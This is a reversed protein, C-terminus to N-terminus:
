DEEGDIPRIKLMGEYLLDQLRAQSMGALEQTEEETLGAYTILMANVDSRMKAYHALNEETLSVEATYAEEDTLTVFRLVTNAIYGCHTKLREEDEFRYSNPYLISPLDQFLEEYDRSAKFLLDYDLLATSSYESDLMRLDNNEYIAYFLRYDEAELAADLRQRFETELAALDKTRLDYGIDYAKASFIIAAIVAAVAIALLTMPVAIGSFRRAREEVEARTEEFAANYKRMDRRHQQAEPNPKGCYPCFADEIAINAGCYPCKM